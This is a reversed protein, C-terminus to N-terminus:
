RNKLYVLLLFVYISSNIWRIKRLTKKETKHISLSFIHLQELERIFAKRQSFQYIGILTLLTTVTHAIMMDYWKRVALDDITNL